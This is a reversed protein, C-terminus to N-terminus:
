FLFFIFSIHEDHTIFFSEGAVRMDDPPPLARSKLFAQSYPIPCTYGNRQLDLWFSKQRQGIQFKLKGEAAREAFAKATADNEGFIGSPRISSNLMGGENSNADLVLQDVLAKSHSYLETQVPLYLVPRSDDGETKETVPDHVVSDSSTYVFAKVSLEQNFSETAKGLM